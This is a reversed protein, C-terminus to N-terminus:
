HHHMKEEEKPLSMVGIGYRFVLEAGYWATILLFIQTILLAIIFTITLSRANVYIWIGWTVMLIILMATFLAFNRHTKMIPHSIADHNVTYYAYLGAIITPMVLFASIWLCWRGVTELESVTKIPIIKVYRFLYAASYCIFSTSFLALTFHVFIPHWNPLIEIM